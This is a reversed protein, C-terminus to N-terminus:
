KGCNTPNAYLITRARAKAMRVIHELESYHDLEAREEASLGEDGDKRILERVRAHAAPSPRFHTMEGTTLGKAIAAVIEVYAPTASM